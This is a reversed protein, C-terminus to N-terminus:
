APVTRGACAGTCVRQTWARTELLACWARAAHMCRECTHHMCAISHHMCAISHHMCMHAKHLPPPSRPAHLPAPPSPTGPPPPLHAGPQHRPTHACVIRVTRNWTTLIVHRPLMADTM